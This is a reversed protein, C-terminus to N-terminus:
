RRAARAVYASVLVAGSADPEGARTALFKANVAGLEDMVRRYPADHQATWRLELKCFAQRCVVSRLLEPPSGAETFLGRLWLEHERADASPQDGDFNEALADVFGRTDPPMPVAARPEPAAQEPTAVSPKPQVPEPAPPPEGQAPTATAAEGRAAEDAAVDPKQNRDVPAAAPASPRDFALWWTLAILALVGVAYLWRSRM